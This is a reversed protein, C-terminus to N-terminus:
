NLKQKKSYDHFEKLFNYRRLELDKKDYEKVAKFSRIAENELTKESILKLKEEIEKVSKKKFLFGSSVLEPIGGATTGMVPCARSMAEIVARPLGETDSPQIYIDLDDLFDFIKDHPLSGLFVVDNLLNYKETLERLYTQDGGGVLLYKIEIGKEKLKAIAKIVHEQGKYKVNLNGITGLKIGRNKDFREIKELRNSLVMKDLKKLSVNSCNISKGKTPYRKQLFEKTVYLVFKADKVYHRQLFFEFPAILRGVRNGHHKYADYPCGVVEILYPKNNKKAFKISLRGITSPLRAIVCDAKRINEELIKNASKRQFISKINNLNPIKIFEVRELNSLTLNSELEELEQQRSLFIVEEFVSTYRNLVESSFSGNSYYNNKYTLINHDHAFVVKM